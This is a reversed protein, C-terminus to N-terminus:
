RAFSRIGRRRHVAAAGEQVAYAVGASVDEEVEEPADDQRIDQAFCGSTTPMEIGDM